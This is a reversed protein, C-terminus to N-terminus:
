HMVNNSVPLCIKTHEIRKIEYWSNLNEPTLHLSRRSISHFFSTVTREAINM